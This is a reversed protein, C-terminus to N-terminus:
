HLTGPKPPRSGVAPSKLTGELYGHWLIRAAVARYPRWRQAIEAAAETTPRQKLGDLQQLATHLAIDGKPWVDPRGLAMLLYCDATWHGVGKVRRLQDSAATDTASAVRELNLSGDAVSGALALCYSAKQRTIGIARLGSEGCALISEATIDGLRRNLREFIAAGSALSVQQELIIRVLTVLGPPRLWLPPSGHREVVAALKPDAGTLSAIGRQLSDSDLRSRPPMEPEQPM